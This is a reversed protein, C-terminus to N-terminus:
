RGKHELIAIVREAIKTFSRAVESEPYKILFSEGRDSCEAIKSDIPIAGLFDVNMEKAIAKGGGEGFINYIKGCKPCRFYSMNEIIGLVPINLKQAFSVAKKVVHQSVISPITVIIVGDVNPIFQAVSLAEDDTGPPLDILLFDKYGWAVLSLFEMIAKSKLPGRWVVPTNENPLMFDMSVVSIKNKAIVPFIGAPGSLM